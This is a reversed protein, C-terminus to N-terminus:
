PRILYQNGSDANLKLVGASVLESIKAEIEDETFQKSILSKIIEKKVKAGRPMYMLINGELKGPKANNQASQRPQQQVQPMAAPQTEMFPLSQVKEQVDPILPAIFPLMKETKLPESIEHLRFLPQRLDGQPATESQTDFSPMAPVMQGMDGSMKFEPMVMRAEQEAMAQPKFEPMVFSQESVPKAQQEFVPMVSAPEGATVSHQNFAPMVPVPESIPIFQQKFAPMIPTTDSAPTVQQTLEPAMPISGNSNIGKQKFESIIPPVEPEANELPAQAFTYEPQNLDAFVASQDFVPEEPSNQAIDYIMTGNFAKGPTTESSTFQIEKKELEIIEAPADPVVTCSPAISKESIPIIIPGIDGGINRALPRGKYAILSDSPLMGSPPEPDLNLTIRGTLHKEFETLKLFLDDVNEKLITFDRVWPKNSTDPTDELTELEREVLKRIFLSKNEIRDLKEFLEDSMSITLRKM